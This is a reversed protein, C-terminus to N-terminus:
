RFDRWFSIPHYSRPQGTLIWASPLHILVLLVSSRASILESHHKCCCNLQFLNRCCLLFMTYMNMYAVCAAILAAKWVGATMRMNARRSGSRNRFRSASTSLSSRSPFSEACALVRSFTLSV